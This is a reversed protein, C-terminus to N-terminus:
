YVSVEIYSDQYKNESFNAVVVFGHKGPQENLFLFVVFHAAWELGYSWRRHLYIRTSVYM